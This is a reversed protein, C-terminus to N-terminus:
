LSKIRNFFHPSDGKKGYGIEDGSLQIRAEMCSTCDDAGEDICPKNEYLQYNKRNESPTINPMIINAGVRIAKERGIPDIAQLATAAAINIDKMLIRLTAIMKMTLDFRETLPMLEAAIGFIPTESHEIYPGMGVMDVDFDRFFLLDDALDEYTQYPLAIMVGTGTQLGSKKINRLAEMRAEYNHGEDQPHIKYYLDKNTSEIRLLYRHAGSEVWDSYVDLSQEGLSLTIGLEGNYKSKITKLLNSIRDTFATDSREGSQLVVSGYHSKYAFDVASLIEEDSLNYRESMRNSRRIGCYYCDKVCLNSFEILGRFYTYKGIYKEKIEASKAYILQRQVKDAQLLVVIDEKSLESKTLISKIHVETIKMESKKQL